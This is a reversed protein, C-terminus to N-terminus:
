RGRGTHLVNAIGGTAMNMTFAAWTFYRVRIKWSLQQDLKESLHNLNLGKPINMSLRPTLLGSGPPSHIRFQGNRGGLGYGPRKPPTQEYDEGTPTRYGDETPMRMHAPIPIGNAIRIGAGHGYNRRAALTPTRRPSTPLKEPEGAAPSSM